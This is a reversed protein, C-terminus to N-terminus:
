HITKKESICALRLKIEHMGFAAAVVLLPLYFYIVRFCLLAAVAARAQSDPLLYLIVLEFPGTGGPIHSVVAVVAALLYLSLFQVFDLGLNTPMLVFLCSAALLLDAWAVFMQALAISPRPLTFSKKRVLVPRRWFICLALYGSAGLILLVSLFRLGQSSVGLVDPVPPPDILLVIGALGFAGIWFTLALMTVLHLIDALSFGWLYYFRSRALGGGVLAGFNFSIVSGVFSVLMTRGVSLPKDIARLALADYGTLIVYNLITLGTAAMLRSRPIQLLSAQIEALSYHSVKRYLFWIAGCTLILLFLTGLPRRLKKM